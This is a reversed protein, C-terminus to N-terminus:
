EVKMVKFKDYVLTSNPPILQGSGGSGYAIEPPMIAVIEDGERLLLTVEDFGKIVQGKGVQFTFVSNPMNDTTWVVKENVKLSLYTSVKSGVEVKKGSGKKEYYYQLGSATTITDIKEVLTSNTQTDSTSTDSFTCSIGIMSAFILLAQITKM